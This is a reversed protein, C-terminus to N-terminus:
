GRVAPHASWVGSLVDREIAPLQESSAFGADRFMRAVDDVSAFSASAGRGRTAVLQGFHLLRRSTRQGPGDVRLDALMAGRGELAGNVARLLKTRLAPGFYGLVGEAIVVPTRASALERALLQAFDDAMIDAARASFRQALAQKVHESAREDILRSKFAIMEPLDIELYRVGREVAFTLGRRSLGAGLEM